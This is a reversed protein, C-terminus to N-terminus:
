ERSLLLLRVPRQLSNHAPHHFSSYSKKMKLARAIKCFTFMLSRRMRTSPFWFSVRRWNFYVKDAKVEEATYRRNKEFDVGDDELLVIKKTFNHYLYKKGAM